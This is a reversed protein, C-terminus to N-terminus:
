PTACGAASEVVGSVARRRNEEVVRQDDAPRLVPHVDSGVRARRDVLMGDEHRRPEAQEDRAQVQQRDPLEVAAVDQAGGDALPLRDDRRDRETSHTTAPTVRETTQSTRGRRTAASMPM